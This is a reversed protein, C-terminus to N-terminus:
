ETRSYLRHIAITLVHLLVTSRGAEVSRSNTDMLARCQSYCDAFSVLLTKIKIHFSQNFLLCNYHLVFVNILVKNM